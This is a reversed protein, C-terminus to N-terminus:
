PDHPGVFNAVLHWPQDQPFDKLLALGKVAVWNDCYADDPLPNIWADSPLERSNRMVNAFMEDLGRSRLYALYPDSPNEPDRHFEGIADWKGALM